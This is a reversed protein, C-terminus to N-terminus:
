ALNNSGEAPKRSSVIVAYGTNGGGREVEAMGPIRNCQSYNLGERFEPYAFAGTFTKKVSVKPSQGHVPM